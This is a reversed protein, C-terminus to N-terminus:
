RVLSFNGKYEKGNARIVVFWYDDSPIDHENYKGDWSDNELNLQKIFKGYRDFITVKLEPEHSSFKIKWIDNFGDGNPTFFKPYTLLFVEDTVVGCGKKDNVYITYEGSSLDTFVPSDQYNTGDISYEYDGDGTTQISITNQNETWDQTNIKIITAANSNYVMFDKATECTIMGYDKTVTLSYNEAKTILTAIGTEGNSWHYDLFGTPATITVSKGDCIPFFDNMILVPHPKVILQFNTTAFCTPSLKNEVRAYITQPNLTNAFVAGDTVAQTNSDAKEQSLHYTINFDSASQSGLIIPTQTTLDFTEKGDNTADDCAFVTNAINAIPTDYITINKSTTVTKGVSSTSTVTVIYNGAKTYQHTPNIENSTTSDGFDWSAANILQNTKLSFSASKGVCKNKFYITTNARFHTEVFQPLGLLCNGSPLSVGKLQFDCGAGLIDPKNITFLYNKLNISGYIKGNIGIQLASFTLSEGPDYIVMESNPINSSTLDYQFLKFGIGTIYAIKESPSFEVGYNLYNENVIRPNSIQGSSTDFDYLETNYSKNHCAILKEGSPSFKMYGMANHGTQDASVVKGVNSIVPQKNIGVATLSYALFSNNGYGHAVVWYGDETANKVACIKECVPTALLINKNSTVKGLGNNYSMDVETYCLGEKNGQYDCTFIYYINNSNPKPVILTQTTTHNGYLFTGNEMIQHEKNWVTVGNTYFLLNGDTDAISSCGEASYFKGDTLPTISGNDEFKLGAYQGFYWISAEKQSFALITWM